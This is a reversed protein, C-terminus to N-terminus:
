VGVISISKDSLNYTESSTKGDGMRIKNRNKELVSQMGHGDVDTNKKFIHTIYPESMDQVTSQITEALSHKEPGFEGRGYRIRRYAEASALLCFHAWGAEDTCMPHKLTKTRNHVDVYAMFDSHTLHMDKLKGTKSLYTVPLQKATFQENIHSTSYKEQKSAHRIYLAVALATIALIFFVGVVMPWNMRKTTIVIKNWMTM